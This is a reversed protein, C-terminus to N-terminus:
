ENHSSGVVNLGQNAQCSWVVGYFSLTALLGHVYLCGYDNGHM